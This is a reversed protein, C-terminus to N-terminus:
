CIESSCGKDSTPTGEEAPVTTQYGRLSVCGILQQGLATQESIGLHGRGTGM